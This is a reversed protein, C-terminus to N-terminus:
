IDFGEELLFERLAARTRYLSMKATGENVSCRKATEKLSFMYWYRLVFMERARPELKELFRDLADRLLVTDTFTEERGVCEALEELCLALEGSGRKASKLRRFRDIALNRTLKGFFADLRPPKHPPIINWAKFWTDNVCEEADEGSRLINNAIVGCYKGYKDQSEKVATESRKFYLEIIRSDEM